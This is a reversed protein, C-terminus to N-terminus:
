LTEHTKGLEERGLRWSSLMETPWITKAERPLYRRVLSRMAVHSLGVMPAMMVPFNLHEQLFPREFWAM